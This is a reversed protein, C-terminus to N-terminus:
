TAYPTEKIFERVLHLVTAPKDTELLHAAGDIVHFEANPLADAIRAGFPHPMVPDSDGSLVLAPCQVQALADHYDFRGQANDPGNYHMAVPNKLIMRQMVHPDPVTRSYLPLCIDFYNQRGEPTPNSWYARAVNGAFEGGIRAFAAYIAEFDTRATTSALILAGAHDPHRTAYSQAVVGGFSAGYVIPKKVGLTDCLTRVDDGWQALTWDSPDGDDSRGNGRHDVYIVQALDSIQSMLPRLISHDAGPGGHLAVVTHQERMFPGDPVLKSGEVDVFLRVGNVEIRM